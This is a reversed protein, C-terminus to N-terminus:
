DCTKKKLTIVVAGFVAEKGYKEVATSDKCVEIMDITNPDLDEISARKEGDVIYLPKKLGSAASTVLTVGRNLSGSTNGLTSHSSKYTISASDAGSVFTQTTIRKQAEASPANLILATFLLAPAMARMIVNRYTSKNM